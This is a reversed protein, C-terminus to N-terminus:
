QDEQPPAAPLPQWHTPMIEHRGNVNDFWGSHYGNPPPDPFAVYEGVMAIGDHRLNEEPEWLLVPTGDKPATEIPQWGQPTDTVPPAAPLPYALLEDRVAILDDHADDLWAGSALANMFRADAEKFRQVLAVLAPPDAPRQRLGAILNDIQTCLGMLDPLPECQPACHKFLRSLYGYARAAEDSPQDAPPPLAARLRECECRLCERGNPDGSFHNRCEPHHSMGDAVTHWFSADDQGDLPPLAALADRVDSLRVYEGGPTPLMAAEFTPLGSRDCDESVVPEFRPLRAVLDAHTGPTM